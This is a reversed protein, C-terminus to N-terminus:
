FKKQIYDAIKQYKAQDPLGALRNLNCRDFYGLMANDQILRKYYSISYFGLLPLCKAQFHYIELNSLIKMFSAEDESISSYRLDILLGIFFGTNSHILQLIHKSRLLYVWFSGPRPLTYTRIALHIAINQLAKKHFIINELIEENFLISNLDEPSANLQGLCTFIWHRNQYLMKIITESIAITNNLSGGSDRVLFMM